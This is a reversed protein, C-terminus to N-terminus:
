VRRLEEGGGRVENEREEGSEVGCLGRGWREGRQIYKQQKVNRFESSPETTLYM